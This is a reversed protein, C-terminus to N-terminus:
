DTKLNSKKTKQSRQAYHLLSVIKLFNDDDKAGILRLFPLLTEYAPLNIENPVLTQAAAEYAEKTGLHEVLRFAMEAKQQLALIENYIEDRYIEIWIQGLLDLEPDLRDLWKDAFEQFSISRLKYVL